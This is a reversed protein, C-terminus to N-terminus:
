REMGSTCICQISLGCKRYGNTWQHVNPNKWKQSNHIISWCINRYLNKQPCVIKNRQPKYRPTSDSPWITVRSKLSKSTSGSQKGFHSCWKINGGATCTCKPKEMDKGISTIAMKKIFLIKNTCLWAWKNSKLQLSCSCCCLQITTVSVIQGAFSFINNDPGKCFFYASVRLLM